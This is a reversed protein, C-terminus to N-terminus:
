MSFEKFTHSFAKKNWWFFFVEMQLIFQIFFINFIMYEKSIVYRLTELVFRGQISVARLYYGCTKCWKHFQFLFRGQITVAAVPWFLPKQPLKSWNQGIKTLIPWNKLLRGWISANQSDKIQFFDISVATQIQSKVTNLTFYVNFVKRM